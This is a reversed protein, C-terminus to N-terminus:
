HERSRPDRILIQRDTSLSLRAGRRERGLYYRRFGYLTIRENAEKREADSSGKIASSYKTVAEVLAAQSVQVEVARDESRSIVWILLKDDLVAYYLMRADPPIRAQIEEISLPQAGSQILLDLKGDGRAVRAGAHMSDLLARGRSAEAYAFAQRRDQIQSYALDIGLDFVSQEIAFFNHRNEEEIITKRHKDMVDLLISLQQQAAATEKQAMYCILRGKYAQYLHVSFDLNNARHLEVAQDYSALAQSYDDRERHLHGEQVAAFAMHLQGLTESGHRAAIEYAKGVHTFAADFDRHKGYM